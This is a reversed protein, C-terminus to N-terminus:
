WQDDGDPLTARRTRLRKWQRGLCLILVIILRKSLATNGCMTLRKLTGIKDGLPALLIEIITCEKRIVIEDVGQRILICALPFRGSAAALHRGLERTGLM